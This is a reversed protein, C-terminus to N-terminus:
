RMPTDTDCFQTILQIISLFCQLFIGCSTSIVEEEGNVGCGRTSTHNCIRGEFVKEVSKALNLNVGVPNWRWLISVQEQTWLIVRTYWLELLSTPCIGGIMLIYKPVPYSVDRWLLCSPPRMEEKCSKSIAKQRLSSQLSSASYGFM